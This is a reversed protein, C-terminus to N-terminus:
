PVRRDRGSLGLLSALVFVQTTVPKYLHQYKEVIVSSLFTNQESKGRMKLMCIKIKRYGSCLLCMGPLEKMSQVTVLNFKILRWKLTYVTIHEFCYHNISSIHGTSNLENMVMSSYSVQKNSIYSFLHSTQSLETKVMSQTLMTANISSDTLM